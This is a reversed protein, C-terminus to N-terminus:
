GPVPLAKSVPTLAGGEFWTTTVGSHDMSGGAGDGMPMIEFSVTAAYLFLERPPLRQDLAALFALYGAATASEDPGVRRLATIYAQAEPSAPDFPLVALPSGGTAAVLSSQVLWPALYVGYLPPAAKRQAELAAQSVEWGAIALVADVKGTRIAIKASKAQARVVREAAVGRPSTDTILRLSKVGRGQLSAVLARLAATDPPSLAEAPCAALPLKSGALAAGMAAAACEAGDAGSLGDQAPGSGTDVIQAAVQRGQRIELLSRGPPLSVEAWQGPAGPRPAARYRRGDVVVDTLRDTMLHVLNLGPQQPAIALGTMAEDIDLARVLPAGPAPPPGPPPLSTLVVGAVIAACLVGLELRALVGGGQPGTADSGAVGGRRARLLYRVGLGLAGAAVLLVVKIVVVTGFDTITIGDLTVDYNRASLVGTVAALAGAGVAVPGLRRVLAARTGPEATASALAAGAWVTAVAVHGLMLVADGVSDTLASWSLWVVSAAGAAASVAAPGRLIAAATAALLPVLLLYRLTELDGVAGVLAALAGAAAATALLRRATETPRGALPRLLAVGALLATAALAM